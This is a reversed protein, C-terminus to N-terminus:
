AFRVGDEFHVGHALTKHVPCRAAVQSLRRRQADDFDGAIRVDTTIREIYGSEREDCDVCDDAHVRDFDLQVEVSKLAIGKHRSYLALTVCTCAALAGLLLAYPDPGTDTGGAAVPEDGRWTHRGDTLTVATGSTLTARISAM